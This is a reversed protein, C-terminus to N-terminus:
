RSLADLGDSSTGAEGGGGSRVYRVRALVRNPACVVLEGRRSVPGMKECIKLRCCSNVFRLAGDEVVVTVEGLVGEVVLSTDISLDLRSVTKEGVRIVAELVRGETGPGQKLSFGYFAATSVGAIVLLVIDSFTCLSPLKFEKCSM